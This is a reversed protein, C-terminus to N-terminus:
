RRRTGRGSPRSWGAIVWEVAGFATQDDTEPMPSASTAPPSMVDLLGAAIRQVETLDPAEASVARLREAGSTPGL